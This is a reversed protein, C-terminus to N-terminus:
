LVKLARRGVVQDSLPLLVTQLSRLHFDRLLAGLVVLEFIQSKTTYVGMVFYTKLILAICLLKILLNKQRIYHTGSSKDFRGLINYFFYFYLILGLWGSNM